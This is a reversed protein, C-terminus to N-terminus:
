RRGGDSRIAADADVQRRSRAMSRIKKRQDAAARQDRKLHLARLERQLKQYSSWREAPLTGDALAQRVACDPESVHGCDNFRCTEALSTVDDFSQEMGDAVDWLQLERMGPTDIVLGGGPVLVLERHSTTHRGKGDHRIEQTKLHEQGVLANILTSKGVGSSGLLAVTQNNSLYATLEDLGAGTTASVAHVPAGLAVTEVARIRAEVDPSLDAKSLIVAPLAGSEWATALYRELRRLNVEQDLAVVIFITDINAALVQEVTEVGASHRSFKSRRPLVTEITGSDGHPARRVAVWDGVAPLDGRGDSRHRMRGPIGATIEGDQAYVTYAGRHEIAVRGPICGDNSFPLFAKELAADWGLQELTANILDTSEM